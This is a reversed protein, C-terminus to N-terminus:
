PLLQDVARYIRKASVPHATGLHQAYLSVRFEEIMWRVESVDQRNPGLEDVLEAYAEIVDHVQQMLQRDRPISGPLKDLRVGAAKLYRVLDPLREAGVDSVFGPYILGQLQTRIDSLAPATAPDASSLRSEVAYGTTLIEEVTTVIEMVTDVLHPRVADRLQQFGAEDWAPGGCRDVLDDIAAAACDDLLAVVNRYPGRALGLKQRNSLRGQTYTVPSPLNLMLLRRTGLRMEYRQETDSEFVRVAVTDGEDALAPYATVRHGARVQEVTRPLAGISWTALGTREVAAAAKSVTDRVKPRLSAKLANLDKGEAVREGKEDVVRFAIRLHPPVQDPQWAGRPVTIGTIDALEHEVAPLLPGDDPGTLGELVDTAHDPVPVFNRRLPKPLSRLLATLLEQRLGPVQWDFPEPEVRGLLPLPIHVTVGDADAGPEFQYTLRLRLGDIEWVDPYDDQSVGVVGENVLMSPDFHLLEPQEARTRKWWSDFHRASVVDAPIHRDYFQFLTEDDVLIDRRRARHELEEVDDLLGRNHDFFAHRTEWDGEVLAHRIFLERALPPDVRGYNVKRQAVIPVGYLTVKEYGMVAGQKKEWHPESYTRKVLHGALPEVWGPEIKANVRAWLRSTEVLEASMVWQPQKKFLASGPFIAFRANRAGVYERKATDKLGLHSLLGSLLATHVRDPPAPEDNLSLGLSKAVHGLQSHVDQWERIRLYHLFESRCLKRFQNSSRAQQQERLYRWLNLYAMFDSEKDAFRAHLQDAHQQADAPRERPDQISLGAVIVLVDSVCNNGDAELVMRGLRPDVPLQALKRG